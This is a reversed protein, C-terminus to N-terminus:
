TFLLYFTLYFVAIMAPIGIIIALWQLKTRNPAAPPATREEEPPEIIGCKPCVDTSYLVGCAKCYKM